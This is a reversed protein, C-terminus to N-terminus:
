DKSRSGQQFEFKSTCYSKKPKRQWTMFPWQYSNTIRFLVAQGVKTRTFTASGKYSSMKINQKDTQRLYLEIVYQGTADILSIQSRKSEEDEIKAFNRQIEYIM